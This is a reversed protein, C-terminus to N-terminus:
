IFIIRRKLFYVHMNKAWVGYLFVLFFFFLHVPCQVKDGIYMLLLYVPLGCDWQRATFLFFFFYFYFGRSGFFEPRRLLWALPAATARGDVAL